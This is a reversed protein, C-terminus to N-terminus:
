RIPQEVVDLNTFTPPRSCLAAMKAAFASTDPRDSTSMAEEYSAFEVITVYRKPNDRDQTVTVSTPGGSDGARSVRFDQGLQQMEGARETEYDIIQIFPM